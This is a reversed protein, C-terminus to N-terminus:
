EETYLPNQCVNTILFWFVLSIFLTLIFDFFMLISNRKKKKKKLCFRNRLHEGWFKWGAFQDSWLYLKHDVIYKEVIIFNFYHIYFLRCSHAILSISGVVRNWKLIIFSWFCYLKQMHTLIEKDSFKYFAFSTIM